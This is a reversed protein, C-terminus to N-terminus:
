GDHRNRNHYNFRVQHWAAIALFGIAAVASLAALALICPPLPPM